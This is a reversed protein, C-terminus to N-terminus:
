KVDYIVINEVARPVKLSTMPLIAIRIGDYHRYGIRLTKTDKNYDTDVIDEEFLSVQIELKGWWRKAKIRGELHVKHKGQYELTIKKGTEAMDKLYITEM